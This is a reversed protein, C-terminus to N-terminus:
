MRTVAPIKEFIKNFLINIIHMNHMNGKNNMAGFGCERKLFIQNIWNYRKEYSFYISRNQMYM